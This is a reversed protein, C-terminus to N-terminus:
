EQQEKNEVLAAELTEIRKNAIELDASVRTLNSNVLDHIVGLPRHVLVWLGAFLAVIIVITQVDGRM